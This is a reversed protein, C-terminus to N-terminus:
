KKIIKKSFVEKGIQCKLVYMGSKLHQLNIKDTHFHTEILEGTLNYVEVRDLKQTFNVHDVVPNPYVLTEIAETESTNLNDLNISYTVVNQQAADFGEFILHNNIYDFNIPNSSGPGPVVDLMFVVENTDLDFYYLEHGIAPDHINLFLKNDLILPRISAWTNTTFDSIRYTGEPTGDSKYLNYQNDQVISFILQDNYVGIFTPQGEMYTGPHCDFIMNTGEETGDTVWIGFGNEIDRATFLIKDGVLTFYAANSNTYSGAEYIDKLIHTGEVTGDTVWPEHGHEDDAYSFYLKGNHYFKGTLYVLDDHINGLSTHIVLHNSGDSLYLRSRFGDHGSFLFHTDNFFAMNDVSQIDELHDVLNESNPNGNFTYLKKHNPFGAIFYMFGNFEGQFPSIAKLETDNVIAYTGNVTGDTRFLKNTETMFYYNGDPQLIGPSPFSSAPGPELDKLFYTGTATGDTVFLESGHEPHTSRFLGHTGFNCSIIISRDHIIEVQYQAFLGISSFNLLLFLKKM